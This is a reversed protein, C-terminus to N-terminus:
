FLGIPRKCETDCHQFGINDQVIQVVDSKTSEMGFSVMPRSYAIQYGYYCYLYIHCKTWM